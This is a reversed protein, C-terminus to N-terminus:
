KTSRKTVGGPKLHTYKVIEPPLEKLNLGSLNLGTVEKNTLREIRRVVKEPTM